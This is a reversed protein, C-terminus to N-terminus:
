TETVVASGVSSGSRMKRSTESVPINTPSIAKKSVMDGVLSTLYGYWVEVSKGDHEGQLLLKHGRLYEPLIAGSISVHPSYRIASASYGGLAMCLDLVFSGEPLAMVGTAKQMEDGIRKILEFFGRATKENANDAMNRQNKYHADGEDMGWGQPDRMRVTLKYTM